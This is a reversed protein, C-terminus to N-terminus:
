KLISICWFNPDLLCILHFCILYCLHTMWHSLCNTFSYHEHNQDQNIQHCGTHLVATFSGEATVKETIRLQHILKCHLQVFDPQKLLSTVQYNVIKKSAMISRVHLSSSEQLARETCSKVTAAAQKIVGHPKIYHFDLWNQLGIKRWTLRVEM